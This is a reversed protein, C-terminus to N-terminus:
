NRMTMWRGCNQLLVKRVSIWIAGTGDRKDNLDKKRAAQKEEMLRVSQESTEVNDRGPQVAMRLM